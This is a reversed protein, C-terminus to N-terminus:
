ISNSVTLASGITARTRVENVQNGLELKPVCMERREAEGAASRRM